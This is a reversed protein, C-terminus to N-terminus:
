ADDPVWYLNGRHLLTTRDVNPLLLLRDGLYIWCLRGAEVKCINMIEFAAQDLRESGSVRNELNSEVSLFRAITTIIGGIVVRGKTSINASHLQRALFSGPGLQDGDLMCSLFYLESLRQVNLSDDQTFLSCAM